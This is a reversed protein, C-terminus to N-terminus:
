RAQQRLRLSGQRLTGVVHANQRLQHERDEAHQDHDDIRQEVFFVAVLREARDRQDASQGRKCRGEPHRLVGSGSEPVHNAHFAEADEKVDEDDGNRRHHDETRELIQLHLADASPLVVPEDQEARHAHAQHRRRNFEHKNENGQFDRRDRGVHQRAEPPAVGRAGFRRQLVKQQSREGGCEKEVANREHEARGSGGVNVHDALYQAGTAHGNQCINRRREHEDAQAEFNGGRREM